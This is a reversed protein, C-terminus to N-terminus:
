FLLSVFDTYLKRFFYQSKCVFDTDKIVTQYKGWIEGSKKLLKRIEQVPAELNKQSTISISWKKIISFHWLASYAAHLSFIGPIHRTHKTLSCTGQGRGLIFTLNHVLRRQMFIDDKRNTQMHAIGCINYKDHPTGNGTQVCSLM